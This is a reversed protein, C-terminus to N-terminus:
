LQPGAAKKVKIEASKLYTQLQKIIAQGREHSTIAKDISLDGSQLADIIQELEDNLKTYDVEKSM